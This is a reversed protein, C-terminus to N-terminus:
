KGGKSKHYIDEKAILETIATKLESIADALHKNSINMFYVLILCMVCPFGISSILSGIQTIDISM